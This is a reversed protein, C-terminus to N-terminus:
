YGQIGANGLWLGHFALAIVSVLNALSSIGHLSSFRANLKKMEASVDPANYTKGEDKELKHRQFMTKSTLPGIVFYNAGASLLVTLLAYVQAVHAVNPRTIHTMVDPHSLTWDTLLLTSLIMSTAFYVPFTKHQLTGFQHRPLAKLAIIGGFFSVWVSMGFLFSYLVMYLGNLNFLAGFSSLTLIEIKAM